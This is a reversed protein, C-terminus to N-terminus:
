FVKSFIRRVATSWKRMRWIHSWKHWTRSMRNFLTSGIVSIFWNLKGQQSGFRWNLETNLMLRCGSCFGPAGPVLGFALAPEQSHAHSPFPKHACTRTPRASIKSPQFTHGLGECCPRTHATQSVTVLTTMPLSQDSWIVYVHKWSNGQEGKWQSCSKVMEGSTGSVWDSCGQCTGSLWFFPTALPFFFHDTKM